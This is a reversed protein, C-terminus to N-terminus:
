LRITIIAYKKIYTTYQRHMIDDDDVDDDEEM